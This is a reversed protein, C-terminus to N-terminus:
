DIEKSLVEKIKEINETGILFEKESNKYKLRIAMGPKTNYLVGYPTVRIGIGYYWPTNIEELLQLSINELEISKKILGFGFSATINTENITITLKFFLLIIVVFVLSTLITASLPIPDDGWQNIYSLILFFIVVLMPTIIWYANQTEQYKINQNKM